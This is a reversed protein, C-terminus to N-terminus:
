HRVSGEGCLRGLAGCQVRHPRDDGGLLLNTASSAHLSFVSPSALHRSSLLFLPVCLFFLQRFSPRPSPSSSLLPPLFLPSFCCPWNQQAATRTADWGSTPRKSSKANPSSTKPKRWTTRLRRCGRSLTTWWAARRACVVSTVCGPSLRRVRVWRSGTGVIKFLSYFIRRFM